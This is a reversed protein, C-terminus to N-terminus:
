TWPMSAWSGFQAKPMAVRDRAAEVGRATEM